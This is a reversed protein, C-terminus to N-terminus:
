RGAKEFLGMNAYAKREWEQAHETPIGPFRQWWRTPADDPKARGINVLFWGFLVFGLGMGATFVLVAFIFLAYPLPEWSKDFRKNHWYEDFGLPRWHRYTDKAYESWAILISIVAAPPVVFFLIALYFKSDSM